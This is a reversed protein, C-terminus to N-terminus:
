KKLHCLYFLNLDPQNIYFPHWVQLKNPFHYNILHYLNYISNVHEISQCYDYEIGKKIADRRPGLLRGFRWLLGPDSPLIISIIGDKKLVRNWEELVKIPHVLHELIHTAIIRDFSESDYSLKSANQKEIILKNKFLDKQYKNKAITLMQDNGDTMVYENYKHKVYEFHIGPGAGVELIRDAFFNEGLMSELKKHSIKFFFSSLNKGNNVTEYNEIYLKEYPPSKRM